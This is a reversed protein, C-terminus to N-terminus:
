RALHKRIPVIADCDGPSLEQTQVGRLTNEFPESLAILTKVGSADVAALVQCSGAQLLHISCRYNLQLSEVLRLQQNGRSAPTGRTLWRKASWLIGISLTTVLVTGLVLRLLLMGSNSPEPKEPTTYAAADNAASEAPAGLDPLSLKGTMIAPLAFGAVVAFMGLTLLLSRNQPAGRSASNASTEKGLAQGV